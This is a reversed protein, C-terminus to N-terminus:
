RLPIINTSAEFHRHNTYEVEVRWQVGSSYVVVFTAKVPLLHAAGAITVDDWSIEETRRRFEFEPPFENAVEVLKVLRGQTDLFIQGSRAPNYREYEFYFPVFCAHARSTFKYEVLTRGDAQSDEKQEIRTPCNPDFVPRIETGFGGSWKFGSLREFLNRTPHGNRRVRQRTAQAGHIAIEDEIKDLYRWSQSDSDRTYRKAAEDAVYNPLQSAYLLNVERARDLTPDAAGEPATFRQAREPAGHRLLEIDVVELFRYRSADQDWFPRIRKCEMRVTDGAALTDAGALPSRPLVADVVRGDRLRLAVARPTVFDLKGSFTM